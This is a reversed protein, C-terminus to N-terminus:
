PRGLPNVPPDNYVQYDPHVTQYIHLAEQYESAAENLQKRQAYLASLMEHPYILQPDLEAARKCEELAVDFKKQRMLANAAGFHSVGAVEPMSFSGDYELIEDAIIATPRLNVFQHYPNMEDPGFDFGALEISGLFVPGQIQSPVVQSRGVLVGFLTPLPKCPIHYYAPDNPGDFALWCQTIHRDNLYRALTKLGGEWGVNADSVLRYTNSPGGFAENSYPLYNPYTHLSSVAHFALLAVVAAAWVRSQRALTFGVVAAIVILFPFIPLIHRIGLDLKSTMAVAVWLLAPSLLFVLERNHERRWAARTAFILALLLLFGISSKIVFVTPFYFWRGSAYDHGLLFTPRGTKSIAVIDTMGFLYSEPLLRHNEMFRIIAAEAPFKLSNVYEATSPTLPANGPRAAYRFRYFGWLMTIAVVTIVAM